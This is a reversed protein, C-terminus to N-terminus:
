FKCLASFYTCVFIIFNYAQNTITIYSNLKIVFDLSNWRSLRSLFIVRPDYMRYDKLIKGAIWLQSYSGIFFYIPQAIDGSKEEFLWYIFICAVIIAITGFKKIRGVILMTVEQLTQATYELDKSDEFILKQRELSKREYEDYDESKDEDIFTIKLTKIEFRKKM